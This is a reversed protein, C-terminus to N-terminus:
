NMFVDTFIKIRGDNVGEVAVNKRWTVRVGDGCRRRGRAGGGSGSGGDDGGGRGGKGDSPIFIPSTLNIKMVAEIGTKLLQSESPLSGGYTVLLLHFYGTRESLIAELSPVHNEYYTYMCNDISRRIQNNHLIRINTNTHANNNENPKSIITSVSLSQSPHSPRSSSKYMNAHYIAGTRETEDAIIEIGLLRLRDVTQDEIPLPPTPILLVTVLLLPSSSSASYENDNNDSSIVLLGLLVRELQKLALLDTVLLTRVVSSYSSRVDRSLLHASLAGHAEPPTSLLPHKSQLENKWYSQFTTRSKDMLDKSNRNGFTSHEVHVATSYPSYIVSMNLKHRIQMQLHTDEFYAEYKNGDFGGTQRFAENNVLLCAASSYHVPRTYRVQPDCKDGDRFFNDTSGDAKVISGAEVLRMDPFLLKCGLAGVKRGLLEQSDLVSQLNDLFGSMPLVDDNLFLLWQTSAAAGAAARNNATAYRENTCIPFYKVNSTTKIQRSSSSAGYRQMLARTERFCGNDGVVVEFPINSHLICLTDLLRALLESNKYTLIIISIIPDESHTFSPCVLKTSTKGWPIIKNISVEKREIKIGNSFTETVSDVVIRETKEGVTSVKYNFYIVFLLCLTLCGVIIPVVLSNSKSRRHHHGKVSTPLM